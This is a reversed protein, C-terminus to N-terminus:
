DCTPMKWKKGMVLCTNASYKFKRPKLIEPHCLSLKCFSVIAHSILARIFSESTLMRRHAACYVRLEETFGKQRNVVVFWTSESPLAERITPHIYFFLTLVFSIFYHKHIRWFLLHVGPSTAFRTFDHNCFSVMCCALLPQVPVQLCCKSTFCATQLCTHHLAHCKCNTNLM